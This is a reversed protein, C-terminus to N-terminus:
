GPSSSAASSGSVPGQALIISEYSPPPSLSTSGLRADGPTHCQLDEEPQVPLQLPGEALPCYVTEEYTPIAAEKPSRYSEREPSEVALHYLDRSLRYLDGQSSKKTKEQISWLLGFFLLMGGMSCCLFSVSKLLTLPMEPLPQKMTPALSGPQVAANGESWSAFCLTGVVLVVTGGVMM